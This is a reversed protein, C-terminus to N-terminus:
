NLDLVYALMIFLLVGASWCDSPMGHYGAMKDELAVIAEPPLYAVTGCVNLTKNTSQPKALGFDALLIRPYGGPVYLLINEPQFSYILLHPFLPLFKL